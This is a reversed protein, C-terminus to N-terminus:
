PFEVLIVMLISTNIVQGINIYLGWIGNLLKGEQIKFNNMVVPM